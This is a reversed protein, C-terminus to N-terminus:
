QDAKVAKVIERKSKTIRRKIAENGEALAEVGEALAEMMDALHEVAVALGDLKAEQKPTMQDEEPWPWVPRPIPDLRPGDDPGNSALGDRGNLYATVQNAASRALRPHGVVVAHIHPPWPGQAATRHWAAMGAERLARVCRTHGCWALDVVGGLDHTGASNPDGAGSQYSGQTVTFRHGAIQEAREICAITLADVNTRGRWSPRALRPDTM